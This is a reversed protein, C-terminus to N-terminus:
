KCFYFNLRVVLLYFVWICRCRLISVKMDMLLKIDEYFKDYSNCVVDGMDNNVVKGFIYSFVDWIGFGKGLFFFLDLM